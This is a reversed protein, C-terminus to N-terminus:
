AAAPMRIHFNRDTGPQELSRRDIAGNENLTSFPGAVRRRHPAFDDACMVLFTLCLDCLSFTRDFGAIRRGSFLPTSPADDRFCSACSTSACRRLM